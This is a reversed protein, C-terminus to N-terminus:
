RAQFRYSVDLSNSGTLQYITDPNIDAAYYYTGDFAIGQINDPPVNFSDIKTGSKDVRYIWNGSQIGVYLYTGDGGLGDAMFSFTLTTKQNGDTTWSEIKGGGDFNAIWLYSGDYGASSYKDAGLDFSSVQSGSPTKFQYATNSDRDIAWLYQGDWACGRISNNGPAAFSNQTNGNEDIQYIVGPDRCGVWFYQGDFTLGIPSGAPTQFNRQEVDLDPQAASFLEDTQSDVSGANPAINPTDAGGFSAASGHEQESADFAAPTNYRRFWVEANEKVEASFTQVAGSGEYTFGKGSKQGKVTM